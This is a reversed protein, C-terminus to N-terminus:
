HVGGACAPRLVVPPGAAGQKKAGAHVNLEPNARPEPLRRGATDALTWDKVPAAIRGAAPDRPPDGTRDM